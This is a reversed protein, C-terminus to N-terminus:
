GTVGNAEPKLTSHKQSKCKLHTVIEFNMEILIRSYINREDNM